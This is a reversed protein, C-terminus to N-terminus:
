SARGANRLTITDTLSVATGVDHPSTNVTLSIALQPLDGSPTVPLSFPTPTTIGRVYPQASAGTCGSNQYRTLVGGSVCWAVQGSAHSCYTPISFLVGAGSNLLSVSMACRGEFELRDLALHTNQQADLRANADAGARTGSVFVNVLGVMVIATLVMTILLEIMTFGRQDSLRRRM